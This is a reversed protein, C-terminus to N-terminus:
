YHHHSSVHNFDDMVERESLGINEAQRDQYAEEQAQVLEGAQDRAQDVAPQPDSVGAISNAFARNQPTDKTYWHWGGKPTCRWGKSKLRSITHDSPKGDFWLEVGNLDPRSKVVANSGRNDPMVSGAGATSVRETYNKYPSHTRNTTFQVEWRVRKAKHNLEAPTDWATTQILYNGHGMSWKESKWEFELGALEPYRALASRAESQTEARSHTYALLVKDVTCHPAHYDSQAHSDDYTMVLVIAKCGAPIDIEKGCQGYLGLFAARKAEEAAKRDAEAQQIKAMRAAEAEATVRNDKVPRSAQMTALVKGAEEIINAYNERTIQWGFQEGLTNWTAAFDARTGGYIQTYSFEHESVGIIGTKETYSRAEWNLDRFAKNVKNTQIPGATSQWDRRTVVTESTQTESNM